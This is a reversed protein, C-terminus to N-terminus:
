RKAERSSPRQDQAPVVAKTGPPEFPSVQVGSDPWSGGSELAVEDESSVRPDFIKIFGEVDDRDTEIVEERLAFADLRGACIV